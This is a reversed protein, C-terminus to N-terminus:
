KPGRHEIIGTIEFVDPETGEAQNMYPGMDIETDPLMLDRNNKGLYDTRSVEVVVHDSLRELQPVKQIASTVENCSDCRWSEVLDGQRWQKLLEM